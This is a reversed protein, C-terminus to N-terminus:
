DNHVVEWIWSWHFALGCLSLSLSYPATQNNWSSKRSRKPPARPMRIGVTTFRSFNLGDRPAEFVAPLFSYSQCWFLRNKFSEILAEKGQMDWLGVFLLFFLILLVYLWHVIFSTWFPKYCILRFSLSLSKVRKRTRLLRGFMNKSHVSFGLHLWLIQLIWSRTGLIQWRGRIGFSGAFFNVGFIFNFGFRLNHRIYLFSPLCIFGSIWLCTCLTTHLSTRIRGQRRTRSGVISTSYLWCIMEESFINCFLFILWALWLLLALYAHVCCM